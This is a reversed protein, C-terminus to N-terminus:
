DHGRGAATCWPCIGSTVGPRGSPIHAIQSANRNNWLWEQGGFHVGCLPCPLWFWGGTTATVCALMRQGQIVPDSVDILPPMPYTM